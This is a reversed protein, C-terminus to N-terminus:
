WMTMSECIPNVNCTGLSRNNNWCLTMVNYELTSLISSLLFQVWKFVPRLLGSNQHVWLGPDESVAVNSSSSSDSTETRDDTPDDLGLPHTQHIQAQHLALGFLAGAAYSQTPTLYSTTAMNSQLKFTPFEFSVNLIYQCKTSATISFLVIWEQFSPFFWATKNKGLWHWFVQFSECTVKNNNNIIILRKKKKSFIILWLATFASFFLSFSFLLRLSPFFLLLSLM